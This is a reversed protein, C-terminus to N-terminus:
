AELTEMRISANEMKRQATSSKSAPTSGNPYSNIWFDPVCSNPLAARLSEAADDCILTDNAPMMSESLSLVRSIQSDNGSLPLAAFEEACMTIYQSTVASKDTTVGEYGAVANPCISKLTFTDFYESPYSEEDALALGKKKLKFKKASVAYTHKGKLKLGAAIQTSVPQGTSSDVELGIMSAIWEFNSCINSIKEKEWRADTFCMGFDFNPPLPDVPKCAWAVYEPDANVLDKIIRILENTESFKFNAGFVPDSDCDQQQGGGMSVLAEQLSAAQLPQEEVYGDKDCVLKLPTGDAAVYVTYQNNENANWPCWNYPDNPICTKTEAKPADTYKYPLIESYSYGSYSQDWDVSQMIPNGETSFKPMGSEDYEMFDQKAINAKVIMCKQVSYPNSACYDTLWSSQDHVKNAIKEQLGSPFSAYINKLSQKADAASLLSIAIPDGGVPKYAFAPNLETGTAGLCARARKESMWIGVKRKGDYTEDHFFNQMQPGDFAQAPPEEFDGAGGVTPEGTLKAKKTLKLEASDESAVPVEVENSVEEEPATEVYKEANDAEFKVNWLGTLSGVDTENKALGLAELAAQIAEQSLATSETRDIIAIITGKIPDYAISFKLKGGGVYLNSGEGDFTIAGLKKFKEQDPSKGLLFCGFDKVVLDNCAGTFIGDKVDINCAKPEEEFTVCSLRFISPTEEDVLAFKLPAVTTTLTLTGTLQLALNKTVKTTETATETSTPTTTTAPKNESKAGIKCALPLGILAIGVAMSVGYVWRSRQRRM